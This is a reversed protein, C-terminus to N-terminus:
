FITTLSAVPAGEGALRVLIPDGGFRRTGEATAESMTEFDGVLKDGYILLYRGPHEAALREREREYFAIEQELVPDDRDETRNRM